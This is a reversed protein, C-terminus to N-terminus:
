DPRDLFKGSTLKGQMYYTDLPKAFKLLKAKTIKHGKSDGFFKDIGPQCDHVKGCKQCTEKNASDVLWHHVCMECIRKM